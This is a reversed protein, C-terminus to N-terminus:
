FSRYIHSARIKIKKFLKKTKRKKFNDSKTLMKNVSVNRILTAKQSEPM